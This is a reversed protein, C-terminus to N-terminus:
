EKAQSIKSTIEKIWIDHDKVIFGTQAGDSLKLILFKKGARRNGQFQGNTSVEVVQQLPVVIDAGLPKRFVLKRDTLAIIGQTKLSAISNGGQYFGAEPGILIKEGSLRLDAELRAKQRGFRVTLLILLVIPAGIVIVFAIVVSSTSL